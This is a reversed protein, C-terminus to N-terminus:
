FNSVKKLGNPLSYTVQRSNTSLLIEAPFFKKLKKLGQTSCYVKLLNPSMSKAPFNSM